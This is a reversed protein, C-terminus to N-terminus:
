GRTYTVEYPNLFGEDFVDEITGSVDDRIQQRLSPTFISDQLIKEAQTGRDTTVSATLSPPEVKPTEHPKIVIPNPTYPAQKNLLAQLGSQPPLSYLINGTGDPLVGAGQIRQLLTLDPQIATSQGTAANSQLKQLFDILQPSLTAAQGTLAANAFATYDASIGTSPQNTGAAPSSTSPSTGTSPATATQSVNSNTIKSMCTNYQTTCTQITSGANTCGQFETECARQAASSDPSFPEQWKASNIIYVGYAAVVLLVLSAVLAPHM